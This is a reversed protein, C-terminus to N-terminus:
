NIPYLVVCKPCNAVANYDEDTLDYEAKFDDIEDPDCDEDPVDCYVVGCHKTQARYVGDWLGRLPSYDNGEADSQMIVEANSDRRQLLEILQSVKM